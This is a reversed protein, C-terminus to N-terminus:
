SYFRFYKCFDCQIEVYQSYMLSIISQNLEEVKM